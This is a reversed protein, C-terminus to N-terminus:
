RKAREFGTKVSGLGTKLVARKVEETNFFVTNTLSLPHM